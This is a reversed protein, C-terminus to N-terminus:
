TTITAKMRRILFMLTAGCFLITFTWPWAGYTHVPTVFSAATQSIVFAFVMMTLGSWAAARGAVHPFDAVAGTMACSQLMGHGMQFTYHGVLLFVPLPIVAVQVALLGMGILQICAGGLSLMAGLQAIDLPARTKLLRQCMLNSAVFVCAAGVLVWSYNSPSWKYLDIFIHATITLFTFVGSISFAAALTWLRFRRDAWLTRVLFIGKVSATDARVVATEPFRLLLWGLLLVSYLTMVALTARWGGYTAMWGGILPCLIVIVGMRIFIQAMAKPADEVSFSDRLAARAAVVMTAVALGQVSRLVLLWLLSTAVTCGLACVAYVLLSMLLSRRRGYHDVCHGGMVQGLGYFLTFFTLTSTSGFTLGWWVIVPFDLALNPLAPLYMDTAMPQAGIIFALM